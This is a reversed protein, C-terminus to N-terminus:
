VRKKYEAEGKGESEQRIRLYGIHTHALRLHAIPQAEVHLRPLANNGKGDQEGAERAKRVTQAGCQFRDPEIHVWM